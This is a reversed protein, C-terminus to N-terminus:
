GKFEGSFDIVRQTGSSCPVEIENETSASGWFRHLDPQILVKTPKVDEGWNYLDVDYPLKPANLLRNQKAPDMKEKNHEKGIVM